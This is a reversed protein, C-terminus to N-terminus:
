EGAQRGDEPEALGGDSPSMDASNGDEASGDMNKELGGLDTIIEIRQAAAYRLGKETDPVVRDDGAYRRISRRGFYTILFEVIWGVLFYGALFGALLVFFNYGCVIRVLASLAAATIMGPLNELFFRGIKKAM